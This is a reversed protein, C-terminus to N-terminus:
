GARRDQPAEGKHGALMKEWLKHMLLMQQTDESVTRLFQVREPGIPVKSAKEMFSDHSKKAKLLMQEREEEEMTLLEGLISQQLSAAQRAVKLEHMQQQEVHEEMVSSIHKPDDDDFESYKVSVVKTCGGEKTDDLEYHQTNGLAENMADNM